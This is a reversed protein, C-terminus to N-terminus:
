HGSSERYYHSEKVLLVTDHKVGIVQQQTINVLQGGVNVVTAKPRPQQRQEQQGTNSGCATSVTHQVHNVVPHTNTMHHDVARCSCAHSTHGQVMTRHGEEQQLSNTLSNHLTRSTRTCHVPARQQTDSAEKEGETNENTQKRENTPHKMDVCAQLVCSCVLKMICANKALYDDHQTVILLIMEQM